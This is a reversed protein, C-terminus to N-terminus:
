SKQQLLDIPKRTDQTKTLDVVMDESNEVMKQAKKEVVATPKCTQQQEPTMDVIGTTISLKSLPMKNVKSQLTEDISAKPPQTYHSPEGSSINTLDILKTKLTSSLISPQKQIALAGNQTPDKRDSNDDRYIHAFKTTVELYYM